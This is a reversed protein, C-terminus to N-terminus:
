FAQIFLGAKNALKITDEPQLTLTDGATIAVGDYSFKKLMEITKPGITPVDVRMDQEPKATKLLVGGKSSRGRLPACREILKETGEAAEVGLVVGEKIVVAQGIDLQGLQKAVHLALNIDALQSKNPKAKTYVGKQALLNPCIEQVSVVSLGESELFQCVGELLANDGRGQFSNMLALAKTDLRLDFVSPKSLYGALVVKQVENKKLFGLIKSVAGLPFEIQNDFGQLEPQPQNKFTVVHVDQGEEVCKEVVATPLWGGGALVAIKQVKKSPM